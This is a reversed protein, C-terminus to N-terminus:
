HNPTKVNTGDADLGTTKAMYLVKVFIVEFL